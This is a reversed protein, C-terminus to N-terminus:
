GDQRDTAKYTTMSASNDQADIAVVAYAMRAKLGREHGFITTTVKTLDAILENRESLAPLSEYGGQLVAKPDAILENLEPSGSKLKAFYFTFPWDPLLDNTWPIWTNLGALEEETYDEDGNM